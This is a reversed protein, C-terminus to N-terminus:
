LLFDEKKKVQLEPLKCATARCADGKVKLSIRAGFGSVSEVVAPAFDSLFVAWVYAFRPPKPSLVFTHKISTNIQQM